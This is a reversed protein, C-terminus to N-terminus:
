TRPKGIDDGDLAASGPAFEPLRAGRRRRVGGRAACRRPAKVILNIVLFVIGIVSFQPDDLSGSIPLRVDIVGRRDKLLAVALLVPL